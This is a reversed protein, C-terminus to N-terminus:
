FNNNFFFACNMELVYRTTSLSKFRLSSMLIAHSRFIHGSKSSQDNTCTWLWQFLSAKMPIKTLKSLTYRAVTLVTVQDLSKVLTSKIMLRSLADLTILHDTSTLSIQDQEESWPVTITICKYYFYVEMILIFYKLIFIHIWVKLFNQWQTTMECHDKYKLPKYRQKYIKETNLQGM